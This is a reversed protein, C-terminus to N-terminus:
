IFQSVTEVRTSKNTVWVDKGQGTEMQTFEFRVVNKLAGLFLM